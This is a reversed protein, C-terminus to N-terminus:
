NVIEFGFDEKIIFSHTGEPHGAKYDAISMATLDKKVTFKCDNERAQVYEPVAGSNDYVLAVSNDEFELRGKLMSPGRYDPSIGDGFVIEGDSAIATAVITLSMGDIINYIIVVFQISDTTIEYIVIGAEKNDLTWTGIYSQDPMVSVPQTIDATPETEYPVTSQPDSAVPQSNDSGAVDNNASWDCSVCSVILLFSMVILFFKEKM